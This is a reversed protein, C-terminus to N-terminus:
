LHSAVVPFPLFCFKDIGRVEQTQANQRRNGWIPKTLRITRSHSIRAISYGRVDRICLRCVFFDIVKTKGHLQVVLV